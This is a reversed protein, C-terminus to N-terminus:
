SKSSANAAGDINALLAIVRSRNSVNLKRLIASTHAKATAESIGLEYAIQKNQLGRLLLELVHSERQTLEHLRAPAGIGDNPTKATAADHRFDLPPRNPRRALLSALYGVAEVFDDLRESACLGQRRFSAVKATAWAPAGDCLTEVHDIAAFVYARMARVAQAQLSSLNAEAASGCSQLAVAENNRDISKVIATSKATVPARPARPQAGVRFAGVQGQASTAKSNTPLTMDREGNEGRHREKAFERKFRRMASWNESSNLLRGAPPFIAALADVVTAIKVAPYISRDRRAAPYRRRRIRKKEGM